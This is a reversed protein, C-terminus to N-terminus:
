LQVSAREEHWKSVCEDVKGPLESETCVLSEIQRVSEAIHSNVIGSAVESAPRMDGIAALYTAVPQVISRALTKRHKDYFAPFREHFVAPSQAVQKIQHIEVSLQRAMADNLITTALQRYMATNSAALEDHKAVLSALSDATETRLSAVDTSVQVHSEAVARVEISIKAHGSETAENLTQLGAKNDASAQMFAARDQERALQMAALSEFIRGRDAQLEVVATTIKETSSSLATVSSVLVALQKALPDEPPPQDQAPPTQPQTPEPPGKAAMALPIMAQQVFRVDGLNTEKGDIMVTETVPNMDDKDAWDNLTWHGNFFNKVGAETRSTLNGRELADVNFRAYYVEQEDKTLLKRWIEQEWLRLWMILSYKVFSIGLEEINNFTARLLHGILHPPVGYWRAMEEIDFQESEIFQSDLLSFGLMQVETDKPLILWKGANDPGGHVENIERRYEQRAADDKFKAGKLALPPAGGHNIASAGRKQTGIAKGISERAATIVGKGVIGDESIISPVHLMREQPVKRPKGYDDPQNVYYVIKGDERRINQSPIRRPHIPELSDPVGGANFVIESFSNGWNVQHNVGRARFMMSGMDNNPQDHILRHVRHKKAIDAGGGPLKKHLNLPLWGATGALLRTAAWCVSYNFATNEDVRVGASTRPAITEYYRDDGAPALSVTSKGLFSMLISM